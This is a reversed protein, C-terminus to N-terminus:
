AIAINLDEHKQEVTRPMAKWLVWSFLKLCVQEPFINEYFDTCDIQAFNLYQQMFEGVDISIPIALTQIYQDAWIEQGEEWDLGMRKFIYNLRQQEFQVYLAAYYFAM